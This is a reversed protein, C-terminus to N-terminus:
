KSVAHSRCPQNEGPCAHPCWGCGPANHGACLWCCVQGIISTMLMAWFPPVPVGLATENLGINGQYTQIRYDCTLALCCGGAPCAGRIAAVALACLQKLQSSACLVPAQISHM